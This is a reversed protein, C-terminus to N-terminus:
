SDPITPTEAVAVVGRGGPGSPTDLVGVGQGNGLVPEPQVHPGPESVGWDLVDTGGVDAAPLTVQRGLYARGGKALAARQRQPDELEGNVLARDVGVRDALNGGGPAPSIGIQDQPGALAAGKARLLGALQQGTERQEPPIVDDGQEAGAQADALEGAQVAAADVEVLGDGAQLDDVDTELRAALGAAAELGAGFAVGADALDGQGGRTTSAIRRRSGGPLSGAARNNV